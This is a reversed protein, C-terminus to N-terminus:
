TRVHVQIGSSVICVEYFVTIISQSLLQLQAHMTHSRRLDMSPSWAVHM